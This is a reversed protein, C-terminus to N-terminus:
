FLEVRSHQSSGNYPFRLRIRLHLARRQRKWVAEDAQELEPFGLDVVKAHPHFAESNIRGNFLELRIEWFRLRQDIPVLFQVEMIRVPEQTLHRGDVVSPLALVDGCLAPKCARRMVVGAASIYRRMSSATMSMILSNRICRAAPGSGSLASSWIM